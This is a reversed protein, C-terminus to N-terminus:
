KNNEFRCLISDKMTINIGFQVLGTLMVAFCSVKVHEMQKKKASFIVWFVKIKNKNM